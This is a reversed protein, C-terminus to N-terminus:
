HRYITCDSLIKVALTGPTNALKCVLSVIFMQLLDPLLTSDDSVLFDLQLSAKEEEIFIRDRYITSCDIKEDSM